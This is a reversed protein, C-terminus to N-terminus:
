IFYVNYLYIRYKFIIGLLIINRFRIDNFKVTKLVSGLMFIVGWALVKKYFINESMYVLTIIYGLISIM